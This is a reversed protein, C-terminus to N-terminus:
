KSYNKNQATIRVEDIKQSPSDAAARSGVNSAQILADSSKYILGNGDKL